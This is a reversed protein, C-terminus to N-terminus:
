GQLSNGSLLCIILRLKKFLPHVREPASPLTLLDKAPQLIVPPQIQLSMLQSYWPQTPWLPAVVVGTAQDHIIKQLVHTLCSFPPFCYFCMNSWSITFANIYAAEPDPKYSCYTPMQKNLRSAFLDIEPQVKLTKLAQKLVRPNLMWETDISHFNRSKSDAEINESGPIHAATLWRINNSICFQWIQVALDNCAISHCTGMNNIIAVASSNDIMLKVHKGNLSGKFTKIAFFAALLELYNIHNKSETYSWRGGTSVEDMVAGWGQLSADSYLTIDIAPPYIDNYSSELIDLWWGLEEIAKNSISMLSDFNGKSEKLANIKDNELNRYHLAGYKVGPFSSILCGIIKSVYRISISSVNELTESLLQKIKEKKEKTLCVIMNVSDIEFGLYVIKQQPVLVSKEPHIVLGLSELMIITDIVNAVCLKYSSGQLYLDDIYGAIIHNKLRLHSLPPKMMKTFKRPCTCLGNPFVTFKYLTGNYIFKLYKQSNPSIKVSYYADKLDLSAMWCNKTVLRLISHISEMKFHLNEIYSNLKKLNLILRIKGDKKPVTFVPSIFEGVEHTCPVIINKEKLDSVEKEVLPIHERCISNPPYSSQLPPDSIFELDDGSIIDLISSDSTLKKWQDLFLSLQGGKFHRM